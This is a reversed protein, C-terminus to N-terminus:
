IKPLHIEHYMEGRDETDNMHEMINVSCGSHALVRGMEKEWQIRHELWMLATRWTHPEREPKCIKNVNNRLRPPGKEVRRGTLKWSDSHVRHLCWWRQFTKSPTVSSTRTMSFPLTVCPLLPSQDGDNVGEWPGPTLEPGEIKTHGYAVKRSNLIWLM